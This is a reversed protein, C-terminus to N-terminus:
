RLAPLGLSLLPDIENFFEGTVAACRLNKVFVECGTAYGGVRFGDAHAACRGPHFALMRRANDIAKM